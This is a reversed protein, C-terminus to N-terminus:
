RGSMKIEVPKPAHEVSKLLGAFLYIYDDDMLTLQLPFGAMLVGIRKGHMVSGFDALGSQMTIM